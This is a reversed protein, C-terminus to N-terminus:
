DMSFDIQFHYLDGVLLLSQKNQPELRSGILSASAVESTTFNTRSISRATSMKNSQKPFLM